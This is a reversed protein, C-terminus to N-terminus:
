LCDVKSMVGEVAFSNEGSASGLSFSYSLAAHLLLTLTIATESRSTHDM